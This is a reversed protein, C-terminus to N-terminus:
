ASCGALNFVDWPVVKAKGEDWISSYRLSRGLDPVLLKGAAPATAAPLNEVQGGADVTYLVGQWITCAELDAGTVDGEPCHNMLMGASREVEDAHMVVGDLVLDTKLGALKFMHSAAAADPVPSFRIEYAKDRDQYIAKAQVCEGAVAAGALSATMLLSLTVSSRLAM